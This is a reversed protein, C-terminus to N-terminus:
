LKCFLLITVRLADSSSARLVAVEVNCGALARVKEWTAQLTEDLDINRLNNLHHQAYTEYKLRRLLNNGRIWLLKVHEPISGAPGSFAGCKQLIQQMDDSSLFKRGLIEYRCLVSAAKM